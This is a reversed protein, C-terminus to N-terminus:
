KDTIYLIVSFSQGLKWTYYRKRIQQFINMLQYLKRLHEHIKQTYVMCMHQVGEPITLVAVEATLIITLMCSFACHTMPNALFLGMTVTCCLKQWVFPVCGGKLVASSVPRVLTLFTSSHFLAFWKSLWPHWFLIYFAYSQWTLMTYLLRLTKQLKCSPIAFIVIWFTKCFTSLNCM